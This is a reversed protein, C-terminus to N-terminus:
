SLLFMSAVVAVLASWSRRHASRVSQGASEFQTDRKLAHLQDAMEGATQYRQEPQKVLAKQIITELRRDVDPKLKSLRTPAQNLISDFLVATTTGKFPREGSAMEYLVAGFSFVDSRADVTLGRAQEPSMYAPTGLVHPLVTLDSLATAAEDVGAAPSFKAIGFDLIKVRSKSS